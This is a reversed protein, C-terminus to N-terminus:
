WQSLNLQTLKITLAQDMSIKTETESLTLIVDMKIVYEMKGLQAMEVNMEKADIIVLSQALTLLIHM